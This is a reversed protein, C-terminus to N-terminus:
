RVRGIGFQKTVRVLKGGDFQVELIHRSHTYPAPVFNGSADRRKGRLVTIVKHTAVDIVEGSEAYMYKGEYSCTVWAPAGNTDNSAAPDSNGQLDRGSRRTQIFTIYRPPSAPVDSVDWVHLGVRSGDVVWVEREDPTMAIGHSFGQSPTQPPQTYNPPTATYIVKGTAVDGVQFGVFNNVTAFVLSSKGNVTYPRVVNRFPGIRKILKDTSTDAVGITHLAEPPQNTGKEQGELFVLRGDLGVITNHAATIVNEIRGVPDGTAADLVVWFDAPGSEGVSMYIKSGDPTIDFRDPSPVVSQPYDRQWLIEGSAIDICLLGGPNYAEYPRRHYAIYLKGTAASAASGRVNYMGSPLPINKVWQHGNNIDFVEIQSPLTEFGQRQKPLDMVYLYRQLTAPQATWSNLHAGRLAAGGAGLATVDVSYLTFPELGSLAASTTPAPVDATHAEGAPGPLYDGAIYRVRYGQIDAPDVGAPANWSLNL